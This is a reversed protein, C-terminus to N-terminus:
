AALFDLRGQGRRIRARLRAASQPKGGFGTGPWSLMERYSCWNGAVRQSMTVSRSLPQLHSAFGGPSLGAFLSIGTQLEVSLLRTAHFSVASSPCERGLHRDPLSSALLQPREYSAVVQAVFPKVRAEFVRM